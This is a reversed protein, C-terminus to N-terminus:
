FKAEEACENLWQKIADPKKAVAKPKLVLFAYPTENNELGIGVVAVDQVDPHEALKNEIDVPYVPGSQTHIIDAM